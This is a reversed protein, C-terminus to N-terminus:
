QGHPLWTGSASPDGLSIFGRLDLYRLWSLGANPGSRRHAEMAEAAAKGADRALDEAAFALAGAGSGIWDAWTVIADPLEFANSWTSDVHGLFGRSGALICDLAFRSIQDHSSIPADLLNLERPLTGFRGGAFTGAGNCGLHLIWAGHNCAQMLAHRASPSLGLPEGPPNGDSGHTLLVILRASALAVTGHPEVIVEFGLHKLTDYLPNAFTEALIQTFADHAPAVICAIRTAPPCRTELAVLQNAHARLLNADDLPIRGVLAGDQQLQEQAAWSVGTGLLCIARLGETRERSWFAALENDDAVKRVEGRRLEALPAIAGLLEGQAALAVAAWQPGQIRGQVAGETRRGMLGLHDRTLRPKTVPGASLLGTAARDLEHPYFAAAHGLGSGVIHIRLSPSTVAHNYCLLQQSCRICPLRRV